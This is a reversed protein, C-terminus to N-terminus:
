TTTAARLTNFTDHATNWNLSRRPTTNLLHAYHDLLHQNHPIPQNRALWRRALGCTNEILPKQWPSAPQCFYIIIGLHDEIRKWRTLERGQDWCLTKRLQPPLPQLLQTIVAAVHDAHRGEPLAGIMLYRSHRETLVAAVTRNQKGVILDGEWHGMEDPLVARRESVLRIQGLPRPDRGTRTRRRRKTRPRCLVERPDGFSGRYVAQYISEHSIPRGAASLQRAITM